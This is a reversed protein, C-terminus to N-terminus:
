GSLDVQEGAYEGTVQLNWDADRTYTLQGDALGSVAVELSFLEEDYNYAGSGTMVFGESFACQELTFVEGDDSPEFALTGGYPCGVATPTTLDWYYYEPLYYLEDDVSALAELPDAFEAADRPALPYFAEAVVGECVTERSEPLQDEVLFQTV